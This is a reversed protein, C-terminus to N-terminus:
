KCVMWLIGAASIRHTTYPRLGQGARQDRSYGEPVHSLHAGLLSSNHPYRYEADHAAALIRIHRRYSSYTESHSADQREPKINMFSDLRARNKIYAQSPNEEVGFRNMCICASVFQHQASKIQGQPRM